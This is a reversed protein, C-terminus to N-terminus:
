THLVVIRSMPGYGSGVVLGETQLDPRSESTVLTSHSASVFAVSM